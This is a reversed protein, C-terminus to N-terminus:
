CQTYIAFHMVCKQMDLYSPQRMDWLLTGSYNNSICSVVKKMFSQSAYQNNLSLYNPSLKKFIFKNSWVFCSIILSLILCILLSYFKLFRLLWWRSSPLKEIHLFKASSIMTISDTIKTIFHQIFHPWYKSSSWLENFWYKGFSWHVTSCLWTYILSGNLTSWNIKIALVLFQNICNWIGYQM